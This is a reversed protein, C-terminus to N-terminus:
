KRCFYAVPSLIHCFHRFHLIYNPICSAQRVYLPLPPFIQECFYVDWEFLYQIETCFIDVVINPRILASVGSIGYTISDELITPFLQFRTNLKLGLPWRSNHPGAVNIKPNGTSHPILVLGHFSFFPGTDCRLPRIINWRQTMYCKM